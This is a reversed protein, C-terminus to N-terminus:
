IENDKEDLKRLKEKDKDYIRTGTIKRTIIVGNYFTFKVLTGIIKISVILKDVKDGDFVEIPKMDSDVIKRSQIDSIKSEYESIKKKLNDFEIKFNSHPIWGNANLRVLELQEKQLKDIEIQIKKEEDGQYKQTVFENYADIFMEELETDKVRVSTCINKPTACYWVNMTPSYQSKSVKHRYNCGCCGCKILGTFAYHKYHYGVLLPNKKEAMVKQAKERTERDIIAKYHNEVYYMDETGNNKVHRGIYKQNICDGVYKENSILKGIQGKHWIGGMPGPVNEGNLIDAIEGQSNGELYLKYIRRVVSAEDEIIQFKKSNKGMTYGYLRGNINCEGKKFKDKFTWKINESYRNLDDEAVAAAITLYM